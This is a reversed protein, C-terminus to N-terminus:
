IAHLGSLRGNMYGYDVTFGSGSAQTSLTDGHPGTEKCCATDLICVANDVCKGHHETGMSMSNYM